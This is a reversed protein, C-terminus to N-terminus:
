KLRGVQYERIWASKCNYTLFPMCTRILEKRANQLEDNTKREQVVLAQQYAEMGELEEEKDDLKKEIQERVQLAGKLYIPLAFSVLHLLLAVSAVSLPSM